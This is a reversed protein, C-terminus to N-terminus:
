KRCSRNTLRVYVRSINRRYARCALLLTVQVTSGTSTDTGELIVVVELERDQVYADIAKREERAFWQGASLRVGGGSSASADISSGSLDLPPSGFAPAVAPAESQGQPAQFGESLKGLSPIERDKSRETTVREPSPQQPRRRLSLSM